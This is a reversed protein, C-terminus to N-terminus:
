KEEARMQMNAPCEPRKSTGCVEQACAYGLGPLQIERETGLGAFLVFEAKGGAEGGRADCLRQIQGDVLDRIRPERVTVFSGVYSRYDEILRERYRFIDM